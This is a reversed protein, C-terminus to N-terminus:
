RVLRPRTYLSGINKCAGPDTRVNSNDTGCTISVTFGKTSSTADASQITVTMFGQVKAGSSCGATDTPCIAPVVASKTSPPNYDTQITRIVSAKTGPVADVCDGVKIGASPDGVTCAGGPNNVSADVLGSLFSAANGNNFSTWEADTSGSTIDIFFTQNCLAGPTCSLLAIPLDPCSSCRGGVAAIASAGVDKTASSGLLSSMFIDVAPNAAGAARATQVKVANMQTFDGTVTFNAGDWKGFAVDSAVDLGISAGDSKHSTTYTTAAAQATATSTPNGNSAATATLALETAAALAASDSANQLESRAALLHGVNLVLGMFACLCGVTLAVVVATAGREGSRSRISARRTARTM